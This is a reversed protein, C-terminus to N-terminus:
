NPTPKEARDIVLVRLQEKKPELKLGLAQVAKFIAASGEIDDPSSGNLVDSPITLTINFQGTLGTEDVIQRDKIFYMLTDDLEPITTYLFQLAKTGDEKETVVIKTESRGNPTIPTVDVHPSVATLAYVQFIPYTDHVILHFREPLLKRVMVRDQDATPLGDSDPQGVVDFHVETAWAPGGQVQRSSLHYAFRVLDVVSSNKAEFNRYRTDATSNGADPKSPKITAVEFTPDAAASMPALRPSGSYTWVTEPTALVFTLPHRQTGRTWLGTLSKGDASIKGLYTVDGVGLRLEPSDFTISLLPVAVDDHDIFTLSGALSSDGAQRIKLVIRPNQQIPLTGQWTGLVTQAASPASPVLMLCVWLM